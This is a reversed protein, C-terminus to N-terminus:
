PRQTLCAVLVKWCTTKRPQSCIQQRVSKAFIGSLIRGAGEGHAEATASPWPVVKSSMNPTAAAMRTRIWRDASTAARRPFGRKQMIYRLNSKKLNASSTSTRENLM